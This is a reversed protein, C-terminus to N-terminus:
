PRLRGRTVTAGHCEIAEGKMDANPMMNHQTDNYQTGHRWKSGSMEVRTQYKLALNLLKGM